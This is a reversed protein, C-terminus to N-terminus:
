EMANKKTIADMIDQKVTMINKNVPDKEKMEEIEKKLEKVTNVLDEEQSYADSPGEETLAKKEEEVQKM